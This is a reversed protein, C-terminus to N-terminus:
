FVEKGLSDELDGGMGNLMEGLSEWLRQEIELQTAKRRREACQDRKQKGIECGKKQRKSGRKKDRFDYTRVIQRGGKEEDSVYELDETLERWFTRASLVPEALQRDKLM